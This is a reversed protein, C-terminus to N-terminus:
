LLTQDKTPLTSTSRILLLGFLQMYSLDLLSMFSKIFCICLILNSNQFCLRLQVISSQSLLLSIQAPLITLFCCQLTYILFPLSKFQPLTLLSPFIIIYNNQLQESIIKNALQIDSLSLSGLTLNRAKPLLYEIVFM